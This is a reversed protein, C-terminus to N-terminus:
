PQLLHPQFSSWPIRTGNYLRPLLPFVRVYLLAADFDSMGLLQLYLTFFVM